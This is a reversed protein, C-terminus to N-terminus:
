KESRSKDFPVVIWRSFPVDMDGAVVRRSGVVLGDPSYFVYNPPLFLPWHRYYFQHLNACTVIIILYAIENQKELFRRNSRTKRGRAHFNLQLTVIGSIDLSKNAGFPETCGSMKDGNQHPSFCSFRRRSRRRTQSPFTATLQKNERHSEIWTESCRHPNHIFSRRRRRCRRRQVNM